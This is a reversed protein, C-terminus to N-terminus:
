WLKGWVRNRAKNNRTIIKKLKEPNVEAIASILSSINGEGFNKGSPITFGLAFAIAKLKNQAEPEIQLTLRPKPTSRRLRAM